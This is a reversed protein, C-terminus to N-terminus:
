LAPGLAEAIIGATKVANEDSDRFGKERIELQISEVLDFGYGQQIFWQNLRKAHHGRFLRSEGRTLLTILGQGTLRDRLAIATEPRATFRDAAAGTEPDRKQGYGILAGLASPEGAFHGGATHELAQADAVGDAIGHVWVVTTHGKADVIDRITELYGPVKAANATKFLDLRRAKRSKAHDITPKVWGDNIVACCGLLRQIEGAVVGTRIDNVYRGEIVPGHPAAVLLDTTGFIFRVGANDRDM